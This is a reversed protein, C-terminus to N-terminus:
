DWPARSPPSSCAKGLPLLVLHQAPGAEEAPTVAGAHGMVQGWMCRLGRQGVATPVGAPGKGARSWGSSCPLCISISREATTEGESRPSHLFQPSPLKPTFSVAPKPPCLSLASSCVSGPLQSARCHGGRCAWISYLTWPLFAADVSLAERRSYETGEQVQGAGMARTFEGMGNSFPDPLFFPWPQFSGLTTASVGPPLCPGCGESQQGTPTPAPPLPVPCYPSTCSTMSGLSSLSTVYGRAASSLAEGRSSVGSVAAGLGMVGHPGGCELCPRVVSPYLSLCLFMELGKGQECARQLWQWWHTEATGSWLVWLMQLVQMVQPVQPM